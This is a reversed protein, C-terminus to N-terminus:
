KIVHWNEVYKITRITKGTSSEVFIVKRWPKAEQSMFQKVLWYFPFLWIINWQFKIQIRLDNTPFSEDRNPRFFVRKEEYWITTATRRIVDPPSLQVVKVIDSQRTEKM